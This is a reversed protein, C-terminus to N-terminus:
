MYPAPSTRTTSAESGSISIDVSASTRTEGAQTHPLSRCGYWEIVVVGSPEDIPWSNMPTTSSAPDSTEVRLTPSKTM